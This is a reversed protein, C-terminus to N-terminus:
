APREAPDKKKRVVGAVHPRGTLRAEVWRSIFLDSGDAIAAHRNRLHIDVATEDTGAQRALRLVRRRLEEAAVRTAEELDGYTPTGELGNIAYGGSDDACIEVRQHVCVSSTIAGVANAVDAHEPVVATTGLMKAAPALFLHVPAGIGVIPRHLKLDLTYGEGGGSLLRNLLARAAPSRELDDTNMEDALQMSLLEHALHHIVQALVRECFAETSLDLLRGYIACVRRAADANWLSLQGTAHLVDTPTLGCRQIVHSEELRELPLFQWASADIRRALEDLSRPGLRLEKVIRAETEDMSSLKEQPNLVMMDMGGSSTDRRDVHLDLWEVAERWSDSRAALWCLPAVRRPGVRLEGFRCTIHSDGGLGLTRMDLSKVHTRHTGVSAGEDCIRVQGAKIVATDTTTGGMDVVLAEALGSLKHAGSVSAAPGSLITEIPRERARAAEMLSGDSRVVMVPAHIGCHKLVAHVHDILAELNPIIRGNLAATTARLRYDLGESVEHGCTVSLDCAQAILAKVELEHAPNVHSAYGCVAFARVHHRDMLERVARRVQDPDVPTIVAGDIGVKGQIVRLPRHDIDSEDFRDFPPMVLLGVPQGRGEVIANTALTTSLAVLEVRRLADADLGALAERIGIAFDWKTTLAKAKQVVRDSQFDFLAVDTYTGGADIGLGLRSDAPGGAAVLPLDKNEPQVSMAWDQGKRTAMAVAPLCPLRM